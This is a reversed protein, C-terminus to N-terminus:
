YEMEKEKYYRGFLDLCIIIRLLVQCQGDAIVYVGDPVQGKKIIEAGYTFHREEILAALIWLDQEGVDQINHSTRVEFLRVGALLKARKMAESTCLSKSIYEYMIHRPINLTSVQDFCQLANFHEIYALNLLALKQKLVKM